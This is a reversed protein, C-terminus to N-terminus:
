TQRADHAGHNPAEEAQRFGDRFAALLGPDHAVDEPAPDGTVPADRLESTLHEQRRRRPLPPPSDAPSTSPAEGAPGDTPGDTPGDAATPEVAPRAPALAPAPGVPPDPLLADAPAHGSPGVSPADASPGATSRGTTSAEGLVAHPLVLVAQTGGYINGKLEVSLGHRRALVSVVYLGIRGDLLREDLPARATSALLANLGSRDAAAIGLGRDEVEIALGATVPQASLLVRTQPSSYTTANEALEALLHVVDAVAHGRVTGEIPPVLKVRWYQEIESVASRLVDAVSVPRTWQRRAVAGGLVAMNEAYRRVRTALHDVQFLGRLLEPDEVQNELEDLLAIERHVLSQLRRALNDLVDFRAQEAEGRAEEGRPRSVGGATALERLASRAARRAAAIEETLRRLERDRSAAPGAADVATDIDLTVDQPFTVQEGRALRRLSAASDAQGRAALRGLETLLTERRAAARTHVVAAFGAAGVVAVTVLAALGAVTWVASEGVGTLSGRGAVVAASAVAVVAVVGAPVTALLVVRHRSIASPVSSEGM